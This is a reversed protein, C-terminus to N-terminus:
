NAEFKQDAQDRHLLARKGMKDKGVSVAEARSVGLM